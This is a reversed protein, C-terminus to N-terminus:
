NSFCGRQLVLLTMLNGVCEWVLIGYIFLLALYVYKCLPDLAMIHKLLKGVFFPGDGIYDNSQDEASGSPQAAKREVDYPDFSDPTETLNSHLKLLLSIVSENVSM